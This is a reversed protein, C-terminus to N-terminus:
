ENSSVREALDLAARLQIREPAPLEDVREILEQAMRIPKSPGWRQAAMQRAALSVQEADDM